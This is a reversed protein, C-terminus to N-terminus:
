MLTNVNIAFYSMEKGSLCEEIIVRDGASGMTKDEMISKLAERAQSLSDAVIVGKGAALGDAKVVIPPTQKELYEKARHYDTFTVSRATPIGYKQMLEKAFAKSSEIRTAARTSGFVPIDAVQFRDVIGEALPVEPGVVVLGIKNTQAAKVLGEIDEASIDLNSAIQATGANGPAAYIKEVKPSQALKWVLTHERAGSGIVLIKM